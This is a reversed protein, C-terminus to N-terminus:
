RFNDTDRHLCIHKLLIDQHKDIEKHSRLSGAHTAM